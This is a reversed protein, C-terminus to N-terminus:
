SVCKYNLYGVLAESLSLMPAIIHAIGTYKGCFVTPKVHTELKSVNFSVTSGLRM